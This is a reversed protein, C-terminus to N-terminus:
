ESFIVTISLGLDVPLNVDTSLLQFRKAACIRSSQMRILRFNPLHLYNIALQPTGALSKGPFSTATSSGIQKGFARSSM